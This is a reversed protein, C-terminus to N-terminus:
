PNLSAQLADRAEQERMGPSVASSYLMNLMRWDVDSLSQVTTWPNYLISDSYVEHDGPLGLAGTLEELMLHNREKQETVDTAIGIRASTIRWKSTSYTFFGWNGEVYGELYDDMMHLPVYWIRINADAYQKVVRISPLGPVKENLESFFRNLTATDEASPTGGVWLTIEQEWRVLPEEEADGYEPHFACQCFLDLAKRNADAEDSPRFVTAASVSSLLFLMGILPLLFTYWFMNGPYRHIRKM